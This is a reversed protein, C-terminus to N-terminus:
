CGRRIFECRLRTLENEILAIEEGIQQDLAWFRVRRDPSQIKGLLELRVELLNRERRRLETISARRRM